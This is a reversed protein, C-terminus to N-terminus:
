GANTFITASPEHDTFALVIAHLDDGRLEVGLGAMRKPSFNPNM